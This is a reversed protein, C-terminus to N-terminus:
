PVVAVLPTRLPSSVESATDGLTARGVEANWLIPKPMDISHCTHLAKIKNDSNFMITRHVRSIM